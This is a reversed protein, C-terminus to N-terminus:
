YNTYKKMVAGLSLHMFYGLYSMIQTFSFCLNGKCVTILFHRIEMGATMCIAWTLNIQCYMQALNKWM